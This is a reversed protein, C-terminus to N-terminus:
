AFASRVKAGFGSKNLMWLASGIIVIGIVILGFREFWNEIASLWGGGSSGSAVGGGAMTGGGGSTVGPIDSGPLGAFTGGGRIADIQSTDSLGAWSPALGNLITSSSVSGDQLDSYLDRGGTQQTYNQQALYWAGAAQDSASNFNLGYEGAITDWTGPQFQYTGAAHSTGVGQWIPFGFQDRPASSLDAGGTGTYLAGAGLGGTERSSITGLLAQQYPDSPNFNVTM